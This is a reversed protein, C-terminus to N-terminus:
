WASAPALRSYQHAQRLVMCVWDSDTSPPFTSFHFFHFLLNTLQLNRKKRQSSRRDCEGLGAPKKKPQKADDIEGREHRQGNLDRSRDAFVAEQRDSLKEGLNM